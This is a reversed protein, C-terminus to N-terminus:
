KKDSHSFLLRWYNARHEDLEEKKMQPRPDSFYQREIFSAGSNEISRIKYKFKEFIRQNYIEGNKCNCAFTSTLSTIKNFLIVSGTGKCKECDFKEYNFSSKSESIAELIEKYIPFYKSNESHKNLAIELHQIPIEGLKEALHSLITKSPKVTFFESYKILLDYTEKKM